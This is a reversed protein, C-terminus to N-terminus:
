LTVNGHFKGKSLLLMRVLFLNLASYKRSLFEWKKGRCKFISEKPLGGGDSYHVLDKELFDLARTNLFFRSGIHLIKKRPHFGYRNWCSKGSQYILQGASVRPNRELFLIWQSWSMSQSKDM